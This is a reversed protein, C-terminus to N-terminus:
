RPLRYKGLYNRSIVDETIKIHMAGQPIVAVKVYATSIHGDHLM